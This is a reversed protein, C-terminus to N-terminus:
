EKLSQVAFDVFARLAASMNQRTPYLLHVPIRPLAHPRLIRVLAGAELEAGVAHDPLLAIGRGDVAASRILDTNNSSLVPKIKQHFIETGDYFPWTGNGKLSSFHLCHHDALESPLLPTGFRELYGPAAVAFLCADHLHRAIMSSDVLPGIRIVADLGDGVFDSVRDELVIDLQVDPFEEMFRMVHPQLVSITYSTPSGIRLPGKPVSSLSRIQENAENLSALIHKVRNYYETGPATPRVSRTTRTLLRVGLSAELDSVYKSSLSKSIGMRRAAAAFSGEEVIHVYTQLVSTDM